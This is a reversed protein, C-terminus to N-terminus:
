SKLPRRFLLIHLEPRHRAYHEWQQVGLKRWEEETMFREKPVKSVWSFPHRYEYQEDSYRESNVCFYIDM